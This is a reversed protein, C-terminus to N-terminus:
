LRRIRSFDWLSTICVRVGLIYPPSPNLHFPGLKGDPRKEKRNKRIQFLAKLHWLWSHPTPSHTNGHIFWLQPNACRSFPVDWAASSALVALISALNRMFNCIHFTSPCFLCQLNQSPIPLILTFEFHRIYIDFSICIHTNMYMHIYTSLYVELEICQFLDLLLSELLSCM